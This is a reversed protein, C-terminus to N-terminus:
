YSVSDVRKPEFMDAIALHVNPPYEALRHCLYLYWETGFTVYLRVPVDKKLLSQALEPRVGYLLEMEVQPQTLYGRRHLEEVISSDHTAFSCVHGSQVCMDALMFYRENLEYSRELAVERPEKFAGKVLRIKGPLELVKQLDDMSRHLHAQITIGVNEHRKALREYLSLIDATKSSEEMSIMLYQGQRKAMRALEEANAFALEPQVMLGIHSLDFSVGVASELQTCDDIVGVLENKAQICGSEEMTNEGIYEVSLRYGKAELRKALAVAEKRTEGAVYRKAAALLLQYLPPSQLVAKKIKEDRAVTRLVEATTREDVTM